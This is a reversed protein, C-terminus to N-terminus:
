KASRDYAVVARDALAPPFGIALFFYRMPSVKTGGRVMERFREVTPIQLHFGYEAAKDRCIQLHQPLSDLLVGDIDFFVAELPFRM